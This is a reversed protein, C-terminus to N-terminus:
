QRSDGVSYCSYVYMVSLVGQRPGPLPTTASANPCIRIVLVRRRSWPEAVLHSIVRCMGDNESALLVTDPVVLM